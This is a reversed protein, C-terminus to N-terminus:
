IWNKSTTPADPTCFENYFGCDPTDPPIYPDDTTRGDGWTIKTFSSNSNALANKRSTTFESPLPADTRGHFVNDFAAMAGDRWSAVQATTHGLCFYLVNMDDAEGRRWIEGSSLFRVDDDDIM